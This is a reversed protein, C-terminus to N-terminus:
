SLCARLWVQIRGADEQMDTDNPIFTDAVTETLIHRGANHKDIRMASVNAGNVFSQAFTFLRDVASM